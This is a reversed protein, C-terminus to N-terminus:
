QRDFVLLENAEQITYNLKNNWFTKETANTHITTDAVHTNFNAILENLDARIKQSVFPLSGVATTGNGIKLGCINTTVGGVTMTEYDTYVIIEGKQPTYTVVNWQATSGVRVVPNWESYDDGGVYNLYFNSAIEGLSTPNEEPKTIKNNWNAIDSTSISADGVIVAGDTRISYKTGDYYGVYMGSPINYNSAGSAYGNIYVPKATTENISLTVTGSATNGNTFHIVFYTNAAANWNTCQATKNLVTSGTECYVSTYVNTDLNADITIWRWYTGDYMYYSVYGAYGCYSYAIGTYPTQSGVAISKAGTGNVNLTVNAATNTNNYYVGIISGEKLNWNQTSITVTKQATSGESACVGYGLSYLSDAYAKVAKQSSVIIDSAAQGGLEVDTSLNYFKTM